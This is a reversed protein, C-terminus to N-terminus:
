YAPSHMPENALGALVNLACVIAMDDQTRNTEAGLHPTIICNHLSLLKHDSPLPEPTTVDLGAAFIQKFKLADFLAEHDVIDGRAVNILVSTSKMRAFTSADFMRRTETTLPCTIFVFDSREILDDFSVFNAQFKEAEPKKSHGCYLFEGVDFGSLRKAITQGVGGFGVIGVVSDRIERGMMWCHRQQWCSKEIRMRGERFRRSAALGLGMAIDAVADNLVAPTCGLPINRRKVENLDVFEIGVSMTSISKLQPGAADLIEATPRNHALWTSWFIGDVGKCKELLEELTTTECIVLECKERLIKLGAEPVDNNTLLVKPRWNLTKFDFNKIQIM